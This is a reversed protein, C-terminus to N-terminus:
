GHGHGKRVTEELFSDLGGATLIRYPVSDRPLAEGQLATGKTLNRVVGTEIDVEATDPEDFAGSAGACVLVPFGTHISNRFFIRSFSEAVVVAVGLAQLIRNAPRSSGCGFNRGAVIVDGRTVQSSWGPRNARMCAALVKDMSMGGALVEGPMMLDTSIHDGFTWVRGTYPM